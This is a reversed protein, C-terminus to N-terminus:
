RQGALGCYGRPVGDKPPRMLLGRDDYETAWRTQDWRWVMCESAICRCPVPNLAHPEDEPLGQKWRNSAYDDFAASYRVFPCWKTKAEDETM